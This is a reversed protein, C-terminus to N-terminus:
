KRKRQVLFVVCLCIAAYAAWFVPLAIVPQVLLPYPALIGSLLSNYLLSLPIFTLPWINITWFLRKAQATHQTSSAMGVGFIMCGIAMFIVGIALATATQEEYWVAVTLAFGMVNWFTAIIAFIKANKLNARWAAGPLQPQPEIGKLLYDTTVEFFDSLLIVKDMDPLSQESEWKSVAQRSVGIKDALEEQSIGKTKRLSQIRDAINM